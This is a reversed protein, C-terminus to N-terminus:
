AGTVSVGPGDGTVSIRDDPDGPCRAAIGGGPGGRFTVEPGGEACKQHACAGLVLALVAVFLLGVHPVGGRRRGRTPPPSPPDAGKWVGGALLGAGGVLGVVASVIRGALDEGGLAYLIVAAVILTILAIVTFIRNWPM